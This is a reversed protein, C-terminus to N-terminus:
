KKGLLVHMNTDNVLAGTVTITNNSKEIPLSASIFNYMKPFTFTMLYPDDSTGAQKVIKTDYVLSPSDMTMVAPHTYTLSVVRSGGQSVTLLFGVMDHGDETVREIELGSPKKFNKAEYLLPDTVASIMTQEKGDILLSTITSGTPIIFRIYNKYDGGPWGTSENIYRVTAKTTTIGNEDLAAHQEIKRKIFANTKNVGLNAENIALFDNIVGGDHTRNDVLTSSYGNVAFLRQTSADAFGFLIHKKKLNDAVAAMVKASQAATATLLRQQLASALSRLFEKKQTSGPFFNKEVHSQTVMYFNEETVTENYDPVSLPGVAGVLAKVFTVDIGIVGDVQQGTEEHLLFAAMSANKGFDPSFNSDRLYLHVLPIHRRIAFPPEVHGKLQGDADYVDHLSFEQMKGKDLTVLGYSGIFGGGPRLEMNNQLLLLYTKKGEAGLLQPIVDSTSAFFTILPDLQEIQTGLGYLALTDKQEVQVRKYLAILEKIDNTAKYIDEKPTKASGTYIHQITKMTEVLSTTAFALERTLSVTNQWKTINEKQGLTSMELSVIEMANQSLTLVHSAIVAEQRAVPINGRFVAEKVGYLLGIGILFTSATLFFPFLLFLCSTMLIRVFPLHAAAETMPSLLLVNRKTDGIRENRIHEKVSYTEPLVYTGNEPLTYIHRQKKERNFDLRLLPHLRQFDHALALETPAHKPFLFIAKGRPEAQTLDLVEQVVDDIHVPYTKQLGDGTVIIKGQTIAEHFYRHIVIHSLLPVTSGFIDGVYVVTCQKPMHALRKLLAPTCFSLPVILVLETKETAVKSVFSPLADILAKEGNYCVFMHSFTINPIRPVSRHFPVFFLNDNQESLPSTKGVYVVRTTSIVQACLAKGLVDHTDVILIPLGSATNGASWLEKKM